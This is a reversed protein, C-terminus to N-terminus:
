AERLTRKKDDWLCYIGIYVLM